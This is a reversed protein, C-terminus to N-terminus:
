KRVVLDVALVGEGIRVPHKLKVVLRGFRETEVEYPDSQRTEDCAVIQFFKNALLEDCTEDSGTERLVRVGLKPYTHEGIYCDFGVIKGNEIKERASFSVKAPRGRKARGAPVDPKKPPVGTKIDNGNKGTRGGGEGPEEVPKPTRPPTSLPEAKVVTGSPFDAFGAPIFIKGRSEGVQEKLLNCTELLLSELKKKERSNLNSLDIAMHDTGESSRILQYLESPSDQPDPLIVADFQEYGAFKPPDLHPSEWTIWMGERFINVRTNKERDKLLRFKILTGMDHKLNKGKVITQYARYALGEPFSCNKSRSVAGSSDLFSKVNSNDVRILNNSEQDLRNDISVTMRKDLIAALFHSASVKYIQKM